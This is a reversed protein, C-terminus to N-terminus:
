QGNEEGQKAGGPITLGYDSAVGRLKREIYEGWSGDRLPDHRDHAVQVDYLFQQANSDSVALAWLTPPCNPERLLQTASTGEFAARYETEPILVGVACRAGGEGRYRCTVEGNEDPSVSREGKETVFHQWIRDFAQQIDM